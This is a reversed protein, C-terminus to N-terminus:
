VEVGNKVSEERLGTVRSVMSVMSVSDDESQIYRRRLVNLKNKEFVICRKVSGSVKVAKTRLGLNKLIQGVVRADMNNLKDAIDGASLKLLKEGTDLTEITELTATDILWFLQEVVQGVPTAARQEILERQHNRIFGQFDELADPQGAFLCYFCVSIQKLRPEIDHFQLTTAQDPSVSSYNRFRFLLLKNRLVQQEENFKSTLTPFIDDRTTESMIETLCRSELAADKFRRRTAFVKPGYVPFFQLKDPNDKTARIVPRGKEFGCNLITVVENYEDSNKLDAEDLVMTGGWRRLMRYIPAPTICGSVITPRYCLGGIVDLGRSKGTGTDGLFRLYPLTNFRDYLWSLLVYYSGFKRFADSVDLYRQIHIEIDRLLSVTNVYEAMDSPLKVAGLTLEEGQQPVIKLNGDMVYHRAEAIGTILNYVFFASQGNNYIQECLCDSLVMFSAEKVKVETVESAPKPREEQQPKGEMLERIDHWTKGQCSNHQCKYGPTGNASQFAAASTGSHEPNFLCHKLIHRTGGQYAESRIVEVGHEQLYTLVDLRQRVTPLKQDEAPLTDALKEVAERPAVTLVPPSTLIRAIRHPRELTSDGKCALTGYVKWIRSANYTTLDINVVDDNFKHALAKLCQQILTTSEPTNPLDVRPLIHGGNGSDGIIISDRPFGLTILYETCEQAKRLAAEHQADTSSINPPRTADVDISVYRRRVVDDDSTTVECFPTVRNVSRALLEPKLENLTVYVGPCQGSFSAAAQVLKDFDSFYGSQVKKRTKPARLEIVSGPPFCLELFRKIEAIDATKAQTRDTV